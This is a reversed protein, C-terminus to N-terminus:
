GCSAIGAERCYAFKKKKSSRLSQDVGQTGMTMLRDVTQNASLTKVSTYEALLAEYSEPNDAHLPGCDPPETSDHRPRKPEPPSPLSGSGFSQSRKSSMPSNNAYLKDATASVTGWDQDSIDDDTLM